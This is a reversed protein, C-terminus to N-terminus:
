ESTRCVRTGRATSLPSQPGSRVCRFGLCACVSVHREIRMSKKPARPMIIPRPTPRVRPEVDGDTSSAAMEDYKESGTLSGTSTVGTSSTDRITFVFTNLPNRRSRAATVPTGADDIKMMSIRSASLESVSADNVRLSGGFEFVGKRASAAAGGALRPRKVVTSVSSTYTSRTTSPPEFVNVASDTRM